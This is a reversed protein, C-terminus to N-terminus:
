AMLSDDQWCAKEHCTVLEISCFTKKLLHSGCSPLLNGAGERVRWQKRDQALHICDMGGVGIVRSPSSSVRGGVLLILVV